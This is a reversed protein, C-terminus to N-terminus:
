KTALKMLKQLQEVTIEVDFGEGSLKVTDDLELQAYELELAVRKRTGELDRPFHGLASLKESMVKFAEESSDLVQRLDCQLERSDKLTMGPRIGDGLRWVDVIDYHPIIPDTIYYLVHATHDTM